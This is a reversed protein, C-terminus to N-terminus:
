FFLMFLGFVINSSHFFDLQDPVEKTLISKFGGLVVGNM